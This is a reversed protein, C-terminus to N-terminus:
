PQARWDCEADVKTRSGMAAILIILNNMTINVFAKAETQLIPVM